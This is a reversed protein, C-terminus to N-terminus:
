IFTLWCRKVHLACSDFSKPMNKKDGNFKKLLMQQNGTVTSKSGLVCPRIVNFNFPFQFYPRHKTQNAM